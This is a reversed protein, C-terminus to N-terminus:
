GGEPSRPAAAKRSFASRGSRSSAGSLRISWGRRWDPWHRGLPRRPRCDWYAEIAALRVEDRDLFYVYRGWRGLAIFDDTTWAGSVGVVDVGPPLSRLRVLIANAREMM